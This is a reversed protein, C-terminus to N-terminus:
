NINIQFFEAPQIISITGKPLPYVNSTIDIAFPESVTIAEQPIDEIAKAMDIPKIKEIKKDKLKIASAIDSIIQETIFVKGM